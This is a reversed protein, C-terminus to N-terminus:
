VGGNSKRRHRHFWFALLGVQGLAMMVIGAPEPIPSLTLFVPNTLGSAWTNIFAGTPSYQTITGNGNNAVFLNGTTPDFVLGSPGNLNSSTFTKLFTGDPGFEQIESGGQTPSNINAVYVNGASDFAIGTPTFLNAAGFTLIPNRQLATNYVNVYGGGSTQTMGENTVYLYPNTTTTPNFNHPNSASDTTNFGLAFPSALQGNNAGNSTFTGMGTGNLNQQLIAGPNQLPGFQTIYANNTTPKIAMDVPSNLFTSSTNAPIFFGNPALTNTYQSVSNIEAPATGNNVVYVNGAADTLIGFPGAINTSVTATLSGTVTGTYQKYDGTTLSLDETVLISTADSRTACWGIIALAVLVTSTRPKM